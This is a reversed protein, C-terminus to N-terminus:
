LVLSASKANSRGTQALGNSGNLKVPKISESVRGVQPPSSGSKPKNKGAKKADYQLKEVDILGM